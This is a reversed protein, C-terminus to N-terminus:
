GRRKWKTFEKDAIHGTRFLKLEMADLKRTYKSTDEDVANQSMDMVETYRPSPLSLTRRCASPYPRRKACRDGFAAVLVDALETNGNLVAFRMGFDFYHMNWDQAPTPRAIRVRLLLQWVKIAVAKADAALTHRFPASYVKPERITVFKKPALESVLWLPLELKSGAPM